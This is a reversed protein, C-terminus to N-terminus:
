SRSRADHQSRRIHHLTRAIKRGIYWDYVREIPRYKATSKPRVARSCPREM